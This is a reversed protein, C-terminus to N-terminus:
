LKIFLIFAIQVDMSDQFKQMYICGCLHICDLFALTDMKLMVESIWTTCHLSHVLIVVIKFNM